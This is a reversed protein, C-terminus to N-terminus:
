NSWSSALEKNREFFAKCAELGKPALKEYDSRFDGNLILYDQEGPKGERPVVLATEDSASDSGFLSLVSLGAGSAYSIFFGDCQLVANGSLGGTRVWELAEAKAM